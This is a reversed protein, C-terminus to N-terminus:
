FKKGLGAFVVWPDIDVDSNGVGSGIWAEPRIQM